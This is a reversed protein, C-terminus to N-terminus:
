RAAVCRGCILACAVNMAWDPLRWGQLVDRIWAHGIREFAKEQDAPTVAPWGQLDAVAADSCLRALPPGAEGM